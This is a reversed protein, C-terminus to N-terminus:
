HADAERRHEVVAALLHLLRDAAVHDRALLDDGEGDRLRPAAGVHRLHAGERHLVAVVVDDAALLLEDGAAHVGVVAGGRHAGVAGLLAHVAHREEDNRHVELADLALRDLRLPPPRRVRRVDHEVLHAHVLLVQEALLVVAEAVDHLVEVGLPEAHDSLASTGRVLHDAFRDLVGAVAVGEALREDLRLHDTVLDRRHRHLALRQEGEGFLEGVM